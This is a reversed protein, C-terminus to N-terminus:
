TTVAKLKQKACGFVPLFDILFQLPELVKDYAKHIEENTSQMLHLMGVGAAWSLRQVSKIASLDPLPDSM